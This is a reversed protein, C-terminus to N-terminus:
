NSRSNRVPGSVALVASISSKAMSRSPEAELYAEVVYDWTLKRLDRNRRLNRTEDPFIPEMKAMLLDVKRAEDFSQGHSELENWINQLRTLFTDVTDKEEFKIALLDQM